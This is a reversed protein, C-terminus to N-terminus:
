TATWSSILIEDVNNVTELAYGTDNAKPNGRTGHQRNGIEISLAYIAIKKSDPCNAVPNKKRSTLM